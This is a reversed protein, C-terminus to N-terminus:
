QRRIAFLFREVGANRAALMAQVVVGNPADTDTDTDANVILTKEATLHPRLAEAVAGPDVAGSGGFLRFAGIMGSITGLLGLLPAATVVTELIWLGQDLRREILAAQDWPAPGAVQQWVPSALAQDIRALLALAGDYGSLAFDREHNVELWAIGRKRIEFQAAGGALVIDAQDLLDEVPGHQPGLLREVKSRDDPTSKHLSSGVVEMGAGRLTDILAWAKAGGCRLLVRRGQLRTRYRALEAAVRAEERAILRETRAPLDAPGGQEVLLAALRRLTDSCHAVGQFSGEIFPIGFRQRMAEALNAMGQSCLLLAAKARHATAIESVRGDGSLSARITIGLEALLPRLHDLEGGLNFEGILNIDTATTTEPERTGVLHDLLALAAMHNGYPRSGAFGPVDVPVVPRGWREAAARCVANIDDGTMAPLCTQYVFVAPPDTREIVEGIAKYLKREGGMVVEKETLDTTFSHRHLRSGSSATPRFAWSGTECAAVGHVLHAADAIPQLAM